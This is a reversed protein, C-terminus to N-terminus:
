LGTKLNGAIQPTITNIPVKPKDGVNLTTKIPIFINKINANSDVISIKLKGSVTVKEAGYVLQKTNEGIIIDMTFVLNEDKSIYQDGSQTVVVNFLYNRLKPKGAITSIVYDYGGNYIKNLETIDVTSNGYSSSYANYQHVLDLHESANFKDYILKVIEAMINYSYDNLNKLQDVIEKRLTLCRPDNNNVM